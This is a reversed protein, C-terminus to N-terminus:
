VHRAAASHKRWDVTAANEEDFELVEADTVIEKALYGNLQAKEAETWDSMFNHGLTYGANKQNHYKIEHHTKAFNEFRAEFEETTLYNKNHQVLYKAYHDRLNNATAYGVLALAVAFKM